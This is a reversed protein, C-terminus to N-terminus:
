DTPPHSPSLFVCVYQPLCMCASDLNEKLFPSVTWSHPLYGAFLTWGGAVEFPGWCCLVAERSTVGKRPLWCKRLLASMYPCQWKWESCFLTSPHYKSWLRDQTPHYKALGAKYDWSEQTRNQTWWEREYASIGLLCGAGWVGDWHQKGCGLWVCSCM